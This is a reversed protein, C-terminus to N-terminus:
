VFESLPQFRPDGKAPIFYAPPLVGWTPHRLRVLAEAGDLALSRSNVKPQYWLELWGAELAEAADVAPSPPFQVRRLGAVAARLDRDAFPTKLIPLMALGLHEGFGHVATVMPSAAPGLLLVQGDFDQAAAIELARLAEMGGASLGFIVLDPYHTGLMEGM